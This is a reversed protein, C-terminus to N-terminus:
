VSRERNGRIQNAVNRFLRPDRATGHYEEPVRNNWRNEKRRPDVLRSISCQDVSFTFSNSVTWLRLRTTLTVSPNQAVNLVHQKLLKISGDAQKVANYVDKTNIIDEKYTFDDSQQCLVFSCIVYSSLRRFTTYLMVNMHYFGWRILTETTKIANKYVNKLSKSIDRASPNIHIVDDKLILKTRIVPTCNMCTTFRHIEAFITITSLGYISERETYSVSFFRELVWQQNHFSSSMRNLSSSFAEALSKVYHFNYFRYVAM